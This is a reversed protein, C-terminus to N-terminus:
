ETEEVVFGVALSGEPEFRARLDFLRTGPEEELVELDIEDADKEIEFDALSEGSCGVVRVTLGDEGPGAARVVLHAGPRLSPHGIGGDLEVIAAVAWGGAASSTEVRVVSRWGDETYGSYAPDDSVLGQVRGLDGALRAGMLPISEFAPEPVGEDLYECDWCDVEGNEGRIPVRESCASLLVLAAWSTCRAM